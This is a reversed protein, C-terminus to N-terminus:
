TSPRVSRSSSVRVSRFRDCIGLLLAVVFIWSWWVVVTSKKSSFLASCNSLVKHGTGPARSGFTLNPIKEQLAFPFSKSKSFAAFCVHHFM